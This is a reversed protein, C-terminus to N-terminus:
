PIRQFFWERHPRVQYYCVVHLGRLLDKIIVHYNKLRSLEDEQQRRETIDEASCVLYKINGKSDQGPSMVMSLLRSEGSANTIRQETRVTRNTKFTRTNRKQRVKVADKPLFEYMDRFAM